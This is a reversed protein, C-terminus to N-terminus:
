LWSQSPFYWWCYKPWQSGAGCDIINSRRACHDLSELNRSFPTDIFRSHHAFYLREHISGDVITVTASAPLLYHDKRISPNAHTMSVTARSLNENIRIGIKIWKLM